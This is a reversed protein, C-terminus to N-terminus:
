LRMAIFVNVWANEKNIGIGTKKVGGGGVEEKEGERKRGKM